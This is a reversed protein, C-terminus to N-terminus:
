GQHLLNPVPPPPSAGALGLPRRRCRRSGCGRAALAERSRRFDRVRRLRGDERHVVQFFSDQPVEAPDHWEAARHWQSEWAVWDQPNFADVVQRLVDVNDQSM